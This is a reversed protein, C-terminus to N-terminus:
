ILVEIRSKQKLGDIFADAREQKHQETLFQKVRESVQELPVVSAAQRDTVKIIHYGYQTTVVDSFQGPQLGFAAQEFPPAMQGRSFYNLDGGQAASGDQSHAKALAAFDEGKKARKLIAEIEARAKRKLADDAKEDATILIHSARVSEERQFRDPNKAYFDRVEEDTAAPAAAVEADMM